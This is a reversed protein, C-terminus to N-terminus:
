ECSTGAGSQTVLFVSHVPPLKIRVRTVDGTEGPVHSAECPRIKGDHPDWIELTHKGRLRVWTDVGQDSSNAIFYLSAGENIRHIASLNGGKVSIPQEFVLDGNPLAEALVANLNASSPYPLFWARGGTRNTHCTAGRRLLSSGDSSLLDWESISASDSAVADILLRVKTTTVPPFSHSKTAGLQDGKAQDVWKAGDWTQIHYGRVRDFPENIISRAISKPHAFEVELWQPAPSHDAANWRTEGNGDIVMAPDYGGAAWQSSATVRPRELSTAAQDGFIATVLERVESDSGHEAATDPLRTTAIVQGGQDYFAKLKRLNSVNITTSGPIVFVRYSEWNVPNNLRITAGDLSCREDLIEPHVFTFDRRVDLALSEGIQMYDADPISVCGEYPKSPGFWSGAQLTAIPYLVGIDAVHRGGQLMRQLRGIYKNYEALEPGYSESSPSLDPQYIISNQDYWVAHPVMMNIGKAFQDMAEKYLNAVPMQNIGGYCETLVRPRDYNNAASSVVKYARSARGYQFVQDIAPIDQYKFAKMLDGAQGIVPNVLEEQDVHGTLQIRHARCWDNITKAFGTAFLEARFGFLANRAAATEPGIDFWLAPYFLVPDSGFKEHFKRNFDATWARGGQIHYMAPEDYFASDITTGFHSPFADYYAQYTLEIFRQVAAPNLYDVLGAGGDRVCTFLMVKWSGAPVQWTLTGLKAFETLNLRQKTTLNMAVAGMLIGAPLPQSFSKPGVVDTALLDLRNGLAEPFKKALLGGASGSPFWYEDYLCLKLDLSAATEVAFKYQALFEPSMFDFKM